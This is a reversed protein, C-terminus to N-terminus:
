ADAKKRDHPNKFRKIKAESAARHSPTSRPVVAKATPEDPPIDGEFFQWAVQTDSVIRVSVHVAEYVLRRGKPTIKAVRKKRQNTLAKARQYLIQRFQWVNASNPFDIGAEGLWIEGNTWDEWPYIMQRHAKVRPEPWYPLTQAM